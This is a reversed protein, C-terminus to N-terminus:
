ILAHRNWPWAKSDLYGERAVDWASIVGAFNGDDDVVIAHHIKHENFIATAADHPLEKNVTELDTTMISEVKADLLCGKKFARTLDTKTIIGVAKDGDVVIVSSIKNHLIKDLVSNISDAPQCTVVEEAPAMFEYILM